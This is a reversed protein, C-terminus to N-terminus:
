AIPGVMVHWTNNARVHFYARSTTSDWSIATMGNAPTYSFDGDVVTTKGAGSFYANSPIYFGPHAPDEMFTGFSVDIDDL